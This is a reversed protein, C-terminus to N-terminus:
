VFAGWPVTALLGSKSVLIQLWPWTRELGQRPPSQSPLCLLSPRSSPGMSAPHEEERDGFECVAQPGCGPRLLSAATHTVPGLATPLHPSLHQSWWQGASQGWPTAKNTQKNKQVPTQEKSPALFLKTFYSSDYLFSTKYSSSSPWKVWTCDLTLIVQMPVWVLSLFCSSSSKELCLFLNWLPFHFSQVACFKFDNANSSLGYVISTLHCITYFIKLIFSQFLTIIRALFAKLFILSFYELLFHAFFMLLYNVLFIRLHRFEFSVSFEKLCKWFWNILKITIRM